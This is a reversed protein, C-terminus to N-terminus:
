RIHNSFFDKLLPAVSIQSIRHDTHEPVPITNTTIIRTVGENWLAMWADGTFLGHTVMVKIDRVGATQLKQCAAVLTGGTDLIDDVIIVSSSVQGIPGEQTIGEQTRHKKFFAIPRTIGLLARVHECRDMAGNDPVVLTVDSLNMETICRAFLEAPSLSVLPIAFLEHDNKSHVDVTVVEDIGVAQFLQGIMQIGLSEGPKAKDHRAFSLYPSMVSLHAAGEKKLTHALLLLSVIQEESAIGGLLVCREGRVASEIHAYLEKNTHRFIGCVGKKLFPLTLLSETLHSFGLSFLTM